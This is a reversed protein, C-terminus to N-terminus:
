PNVLRDKELAEFLPAPLYRPLSRNVMTMFTDKNDAARMLAIVSALHERLRPDGVDETLWQHHKRKRRGKEDKPNKKELEERVGPALRNYVLDKTLKGALPTRKVTDEQYDWAWLRFMERYFEDPFRKAWKRFEKAIFRDLIEELATRARLYQFGTAEDILAIIGVHAFGRLLIEAREAILQQRHGLVGAKNADMWIECIKPLVDAPIGMGVNGRDTRYPRMEFHVSGLHKEAFPKLNKHALFLPIPAGADKRRVSLAGSRYMGMAEMFRTESIIRTDDELVACELEIGGIKLPAIHEAKPPLKPRGGARTQRKAQIKAYYEPGREATKQGGLRGLEAAANNKQEEDM